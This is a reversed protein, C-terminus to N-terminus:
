SQAAHRPPRLRAPGRVPPGTTPTPDSASRVLPLAVLVFIFPLVQTRQRTLIGFNAVFAFVYVFMLTYAVATAVYPEKIFQIPLRRLRQISLALLGVLVIGELASVAAQGNTVENPFPRFLVTVFAVPYDVISNIDAPEFASGGEDTREATQELAQGFGSGGVDDVELYTAVRPALLAGMVLVTAVAGVRSLFGLSKGSAGSRFLLNMMLGVALAAVVLIAIHPRTAYLGLAGLTVAQYGGRARGLLRASGWAALGLCFLMWAEKGISSPWFLVTPWFFVLVAYRYHNGDPVATVFARYLLYCGLFALYSFVLFGAVKDSGVAVYVIGTLVRVFGTGPITNEPDVGFELNRYSRALTRGWEDYSSSDGNGDYITEVMYIRAFATLIKASLAAFVIGAADFGPQNRMERRLIPVTLILLAPAVVLGYGTPSSVLSGGLGYLGLAAAMAIAGVVWWMTRYRVWAFSTPPEPAVVPSLPPVLHM